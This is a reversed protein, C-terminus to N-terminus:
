KLNAVGLIFEFDTGQGYSFARFHISIAVLFLRAKHHGGGGWSFDVIEVYGGLINM